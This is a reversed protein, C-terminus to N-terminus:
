PGTCREPGGDVGIESVERVAGLEMNVKQFQVTLVHMNYFM